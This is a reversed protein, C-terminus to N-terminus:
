LVIWLAQWVQQLDTHKAWDLAISALKRADARGFASQITRRLQKILGKTERSSFIERLRPEASCPPPVPEPLEPMDGDCVISGFAISKTPMFQLSPQYVEDQAVAVKEAEDWAVFAAGRCVLNAEKALEIAQENRRDQLLRDIRRKMWILRPLNTEAFQAQLQVSVSQGNGDKGVVTIESPAGKTRISAFVVQGAHIDPLESDALEWSGAVSLGTFVPKGFRSGLIAVSRVLDDNPTLFASTGRQQGSL